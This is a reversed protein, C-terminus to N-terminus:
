RVIALKQIVNNVKGEGKIVVNYLYVGNALLNGDEDRGDWYIKNFNLNLQSSYKVIKKVLRGAVTYILIDMEDPLQPLIFTFYTSSQFPNPYNYVDILHLNNDVVFNKTIALTDTQGILTKPIITLTYTGDSLTPTYTAVFKPNSVNFQPTLTKYDYYVREGNLFISASTTDRSYLNSSDSIEIKITPHKSVYEGDMLEKGDFTVQVTPTSTISYVYFPITYNNNDKYLETIKNQPDISILFSKAGTSGGVNYVLNFTKESYPLMSTILTDFFSEKSNDPRIIQVTVKFSDAPSEGANFISFKLRVSDGIIISDKSIYVAQYNTLLEPEGNFNVGLSQLSPFAGSSSAKLQAQIMIKPYIVPNIFSLSANGSNVSLYNLTDISNDNRIGLARFAISTGSPLNESVYLSDWKSAPGIANTTISGSDAQFVYTKSLSVLGDYPGKVQEIVRPDNAAAGKIGIIAWSGRFQLSDIKTSGLSKIADQLSSTMNNAADDSVGIVVIKGQQISNIFNVLAQMNAPQNFLQFSASTDVKLNVPDIVAIGMGTFYSNSLINKSNLSIVCNAGAYFGASIVSLVTTDESLSLSKNSFHLNSINQNTFGISDEIFYKQGISNLFSIPQSFQYAPDNIKYKLWYRVNNQLSSLPLQLQEYSTDSNFSNQIVINNFSSDSSIQYELNFNQSNYITPNLLTIKSLAPNEIRQTLLNRTATSAVNFSLSASNDNKYIEDIKNNPDLTVNVSHQGVLSKTKLWVNLTDKFGPMPIYINWSQIQSNNFTHIISILVSDNTVIGFNNIVIQLNVSDTSENVDNSKIVLDSALINLNPKNPVKLQVIPDGLLANTLAFINFVQSTGYTAFMNIKSQLHARGIQHLTDLLLSKYFLKPMVVATTVFGLSTNGIYGIAQGNNDLLFHEGFCVIDPEAFKNTSCGFDTMLPNRNVSNDLQSVDSISNDWTATGSHGVYSIFIGGQNIANSLQESTFPGFDSFPTATKYFHSYEGSIPKPIILQNIVSDNAAKLQLYESANSGGSFFLYRKNWDNYPISYNNQVKTLYYNLEQTNNIPIRGVEMQPINIHSSDWMTYWTDSVPDGYSPVYNGGGVVGANFFKYRKYDYDADGILELYTPKPFNWNQFSLMLFQKISEPTPYGYGFQDFIDNVNFLATKVSYLTAIQNVYNQASQLFIPNTIAIYDAQLNNNRLNPFAKVYYFVPKLIKSPTIAVYADGASVTDAFYFSTGIFYVNSIRELRPKVKYIVLNTDPANDVRIIRLKPQIENGMTFLLSDNLLSIQKPYVIDYWDIALSNPDTGNDYNQVSIQHNITSIITNSNLTGNLLVQQFRNVSASDIRIGDVSLTVNHANQVISSSASVLKFYFSASKGPYLNPTQFSYTKTGVFLWDWYWSKNNYWNSTQNALEDNNLNQFWSNYEYHDTEDFYNLTDTIGTLNTKITDARLGDINGGWTLFYFSTDTYRNLYENYEQNSQNIVRYSISPYNKTGYFEIYDSDSFVGTNEDKVFIPIQKGYNYLQFTKPDIGSTNIGLNNLDSKYIRFLGDNATGIKLYTANYNIWNGTTDSAVLKPNSRFQEAIDSNYFLGTLESDYKSKIKLPEASKISAGLGFNVSISLDNIETIQNKTYDFQFPRIKLHVCYFDRFWSYGIVQLVPQEININKVDRYGLNQVGLTSDGSLVIKPNVAPLVNEIVKVSNSTVNFSPRSNAPIALIIDYSPLKLTGSASYDTFEYYDIIKVNGETQETFKPESIKYDVIFGGGNSLVKTNRNNSNAAFSFNIILLLFPVFYLIKTKM